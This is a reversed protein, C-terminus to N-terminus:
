TLVNLLGDLGVFNLAVDAQSRVVPKARFAVSLGAIGMMKLDNAGDGMVIAESPSIGMEKCVREVTRQKEEADVIGGVVKGTLKGDVIELANAHTYDLGLREKLRETFFTFGGSVLLTKLGAKQVAALMTEAGPSLKLREDYVRQLASADLGELLAVRQKLSAAFDLEGRMAAETIAAVQPKLGQMDAIEDICEITILTSDMDMAVLKFEALERQGMMYTADLQAAQAAVEITPRLAPSYAIQECRVANPGLRTISTPAALAAIRELRASDGDLGQLILNM